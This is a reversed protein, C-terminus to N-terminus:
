KNFKKRLAELLEPFTKKNQFHGQNTFEHYETHLKEHILRPKDIPIYPDDASAFAVIWKQNNKIAEWNWPRNYYGSLKEKEDGLDTYCVGVLISGLINNKEAFRMAAVAGSSYGVLITNEDAKLENKIFPLWYIERALDNDPFKSAIVTVGLKELETKLYSFWNDTTEGGGNGPIFIVKIHKGM